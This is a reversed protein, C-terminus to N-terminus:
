GSSAMRGGAGIHLTSWHTEFLDRQMSDAMRVL